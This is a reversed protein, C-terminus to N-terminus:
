RKLMVIKQFVFQRDDPDSASDVTIEFSTTIPATAIINNQHSMFHEANISIPEVLM